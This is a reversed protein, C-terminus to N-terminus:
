EGSAVGSVVSAGGDKLGTLAGGRKAQQKLRKVHRRRMYASDGSLYSMGGATSNLLTATSYLTGSV